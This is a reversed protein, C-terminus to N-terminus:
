GVRRAFFEVLQLRHGMGCCRGVSRAAEFFRSGESARTAGYQSPGGRRSFLQSTEQKLRGAAVGGADGGFLLAEDNFKSPGRMSWDEILTM